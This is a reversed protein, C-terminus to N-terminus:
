LLLGNSGLVPDHVSRPKSRITCTLALCAKHIYNSFFIGTVIKKGNVPIMKDRTMNIPPPPPKLNCTNQVNGPLSQHKIESRKDREM